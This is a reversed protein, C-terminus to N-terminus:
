LIVQGTYLIYYLILICYRDYYEILRKGWREELSNATDGRTMWCPVSIVRFFGRPNGTILKVGSAIHLTILNNIIWRVITIIGM